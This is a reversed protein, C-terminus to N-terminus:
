TAVTDLCIASVISFSQKTTTFDVTGIPVFSLTSCNMFSEKTFSTFTSTALLGSNRACPVATLSVNSALLIIIPVSLLCASFINISIYLGNLKGITDTFLLLASIIFYAELSKKANFIEYMFSM